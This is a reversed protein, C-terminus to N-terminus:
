AILRRPPGFVNRKRKKGFPSRVTKSLAARPGHKKREKQKVSRVKPHPNGFYTL